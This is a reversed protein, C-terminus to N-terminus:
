SKYAHPSWTLFSHKEDFTIILTQLARLSGFSKFKIKPILKSSRAWSPTNTYLQLRSMLIYSFTPGWISPPTYTATILSRSTTGYNYLIRSGSRPEQHVGLPLIYSCTFCSWFMNHMLNKKELLDNVHINCLM